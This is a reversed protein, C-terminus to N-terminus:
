KMRESLALDAPTNVNMLPEGPFMARLAGEDLVEVDAEDILRRLSLRGAAIRREVLPLIKTSYGACLVQPAGDWVPVLMEAGSQEFRKRLELLVATSLLPMDVAVIFCRGEADALARHVGFIPGEGDHPSEFITSISRPEGDPREVAIVRQFVPAAASVVRDLFLKAKSQGM